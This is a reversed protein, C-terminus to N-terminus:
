LQRRYDSPTVGMHRRFRDAFRSPSNFGSLRAVERLPTESTRLMRKATELRRRALYALPPEGMASRFARSFHFRSLGAVEALAALSVPLALSAEMYDLVRRLRVPALAHRAVAKVEGASSHRRVLTALAADFLVELYPRGAAGHQEVEALMARVIQQLLPDDFGVEDHLAVAAADRDFTIAIAHNLRAPHVYLHAFDIPGETRWEYRTGAPVLTLAGEEVHRTVSRAEGIRTVRKAGGLHLVVYHHDLPPQSMEAETGRWRRILGSRWGFGESSLMPPGSLRTAWAEPTVARM